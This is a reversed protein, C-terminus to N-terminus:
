GNTDGETEHQVFQNAISSMLVRHLTHLLGDQAEIWDRMVAKNSGPGPIEPPGDSLFKELVKHSSENLANCKPCRGKVEKRWYNKFGFM